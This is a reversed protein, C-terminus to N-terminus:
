HKWIMIKKIMNRNISEPNINLVICANVTDIFEAPSPGYNKLPSHEKNSDIETVNIISAVKRVIDMYCEGFHAKGVELLDPKSLPLEICRRLFASPLERENNTTIFILPANAAMIEVKMGTEEIIFSLSGLPVLLNKLLDPDANDIEDLLVVAPINDSDLDQEKPLNRGISSYSIGKSTLAKETQMRASKFDFAWWLVGPTIYYSLDKVNAIQADQLRLILDIDWLLDRAQTRSSVVKEYYRWGLINAVSKALSSKGWGSPGRVLIPRKTALAINVKLIIEEDYVYVTRNCRDGLNKIVSPKETSAVKIYPDFIKKIIPENKSSYNISVDYESTKTNLEFENKRQKREADEKQRILEETESRAKEEEDRQNRNEEERKQRSTEDMEQNRSNEEDEQENKNKKLFNIFQKFDTQDSYIVRKKSRLLIPIDDDECNDLELPIVIRKSNRSFEGNLIPGYEARTWGSIIFNKSLCSVVYRSKKLGDEIKKVIDDGYDIQESDVWYTINEKKLDEILTKIIPKDKSSHCIFVDYKFLKLPAQQM